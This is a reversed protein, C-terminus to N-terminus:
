RLDDPTAARLSRFRVLDGRHHSRRRLHSCTHAGEVEPWWEVRRSSILNKRARIKNEKRASAGQRREVKSSSEAVTRQELGSQVNLQQISSSNGSQANGGLRLERARTLCAFDHCRRKESSKKEVGRRRRGLKSAENM